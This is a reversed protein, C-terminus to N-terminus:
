VPLVTTLLSAHPLSHAAHYMSWGVVAILAITVAGSMWWVTPHTDRLEKLIYDLM